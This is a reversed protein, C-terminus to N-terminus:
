SQTINAKTKNTLITHSFHQPLLFSRHSIESPHISRGKELYIKKLVLFRALFM